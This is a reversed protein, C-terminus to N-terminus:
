LTISKRKVDSNPYVGAAKLKELLAYREPQRQAWEMEPRTIGIARLIGFKKRGFPVTVVRDLVVGQLRDKPEAFTGLDLTHGPGLAAEFSVRGVGTFAGLAWPLENTTILLEYPGGGDDADVQEPYCALERTVYTTFGGRARGVASLSPPGGGSFGIIPVMAKESVKGLDAELPKFLRRYFADWDNIEPRRDGTPEM